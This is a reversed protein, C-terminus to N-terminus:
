YIRDVYKPHIGQAKVFEKWGEFKDKDWSNQRHYKIENMDRDFLTWSTETAMSGYGMNVRKNSSKLYYKKGLGMASKPDKGREFDLNEYVFRAKM